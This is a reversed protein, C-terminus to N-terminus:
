DFASDWKDRLDATKCNILNNIRFTEKGVSGLMQFPYNHKRMIREFTELNRPNITVVISSHSEGFLAFDKRSSFDIDINVGLNDGTPLFCSEALAVSLGGDSCDHASNILELDTLVLMLEYLKKEK